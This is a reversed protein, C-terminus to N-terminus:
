GTLIHAVAEGGAQLVLAAAAALVGELARVPAPTDSQLLEAVTPDVAPPLCVM